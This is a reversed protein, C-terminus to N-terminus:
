DAEDCKEWIRRLVAWQKETLKIEKGWRDHRQRMDQCFKIEWATMVTGVAYPRSVTTLIDILEEYKDEEMKVVPRMFENDRMWNEPLSV